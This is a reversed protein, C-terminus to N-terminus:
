MSVVRFSTTNTLRAIRSCSPPIISINSGSITLLLLRLAASIYFAADDSFLAFSISICSGDSFSSYSLPIFLQRYCLPPLLGQVFHCSLSIAPWIGFKTKNYNKKNHRVISRIQINYITKIRHPPLLTPWPCARFPLPVETLVAHKLWVLMRLVVALILLLVAGSWIWEKM